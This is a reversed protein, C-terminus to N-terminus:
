LSFSRSSFDSSSMILCIAKWWWHPSRAFESTRAASHEAQLFHRAATRWQKKRFLSIGLEYEERARRQRARPMSHTVAMVGGQDLNKKM